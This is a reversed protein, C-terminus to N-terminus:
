HSGAINYLPSDFKLNSYSPSNSVFNSFIKPHILVGSLTTWNFFRLHFIEHSQGNLNLKSRIKANNIVNGSINIVTVNKESIIAPKLYVQMLNESRTKKFWFYGVPGNIWVKM